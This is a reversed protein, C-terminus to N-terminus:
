SGQVENMEVNIDPAGEVTGFASIVENKNATASEESAPDDPLNDTKSQIQTAKSDASAASAAAATAQTAATASSAAAATAQTAAAAASVNDPPTYASGLMVVGTVRSVLLNLNGGSRELDARIAAVMAVQDINTNGIAGVIANIITQGDAEDILHYEVRAAIEDAADTALAAATISNAAFSGVIVQTTTIPLTGAQTVVAGTITFSGTGGITPTGTYTVLNWGVPPNMSNVGTIFATSSSYDVADLEFEIPLPVMNTAGKLVMQSTGAVSIAANPVGLEYVGPMNTADVEKFGGSTFTGLTATVLSVSTASTDGDRFYYCTLSASNYVLGTLGGGTLSTSDQIFVRIKKSTTGAKLKLKM